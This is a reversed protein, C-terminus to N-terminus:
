LEGKMYSPGIDSHDNNLSNLFNRGKLNSSKFEEQWEKIINNCEEKKSFDWSIKNPYLPILNFKKMDNDVQAM